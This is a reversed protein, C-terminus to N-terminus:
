RWPWECTFVAVHGKPWRERRHFENYSIRVSWRNPEGVQLHWGFVMINLWLSSM